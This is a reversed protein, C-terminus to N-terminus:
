TLAKKHLFIVNTLGYTRECNPRSKASRHGNHVGGGETVGAM